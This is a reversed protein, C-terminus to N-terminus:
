NEHRLFAQDPGRKGLVEELTGHEKLKSAVVNRAEWRVSGANGKEM